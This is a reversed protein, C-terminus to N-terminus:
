GDTGGGSDRNRRPLILSTPFDMREEVTPCAVRIAAHRVVKVGGGRRSRLFQFCGAVRGSVEAFPVHSAAAVDIVCRQRLCIAKVFGENGEFSEAIANNGILTAHFSCTDETVSADDGTLTPLLHLDLRIARDVKDFSMLVLWKVNPQKWVVNVVPM